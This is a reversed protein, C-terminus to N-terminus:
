APVLPTSATAPASQGFLWFGVPSIIGMGSLSSWNTSMGSFFSVKLAGCYGNNGSAAKMPWPLGQIVPTGSLSGKASLKVRGSVFVFLALRIYYGVQTVYTQGTGNFSPTWTGPQYMFSAFNNLSANVSNIASTNADINTQLTGDSAYLAAENDRIHTNFMSATVLEGPVWTRPTTWAM